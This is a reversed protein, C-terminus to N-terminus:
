GVVNNHEALTESYIHLGDDGLAYFYYDTDAPYVAAEISARGPNAIATPPLGQHQYLNYPSDLNTYDAQTIERGAAYVLAADIQLFFATEGANNLRNYIVSAIKDRDTGDTEKEILSAITVIEQVTYGSDVIDNRLEDTMWVDFNELLRGLAREAPEDEFFEYTDPALYGELRTVSGLNTNDVFDYDTFVHNKAAEVLEDEACVGNEALLAITQMVTYGEPITVLVVGPPVISLEEQMSNILCHFDMDTNLEYTGPDITDKADFVVGFVRFLFKSEILGAKKLKAAVEGVSDGKEVKVTTTLPDKNLACVDNVMLWAIGALLCSAVVVCAIYILAGMSRNKKGKSSREPQSSQRRVQEANWSTTESNKRGSM